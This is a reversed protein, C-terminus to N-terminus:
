VFVDQFAELHLTRFDSITRCDPRDQGGIAVGALHRAGALAITRSSLVGVCYAYLLRCVMM